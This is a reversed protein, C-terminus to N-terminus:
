REAWGTRCSISTLGTTKQYCGAPAARRHLWLRRLRRRHRISTRFRLAASTPRSRGAPTRHQWRGPRPDLVSKERDGLRAIALVTSPNAAIVTGVDRYCSFRLAAYYKSEIDKIRSAVAPMCYTTRKLPNQM